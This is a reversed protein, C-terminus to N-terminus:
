QLSDWLKAAMEEGYNERLVEAVVRYYHDRISNGSDICMHIITEPPTERDYIRFGIRYDSYVTQSLSREDPKIGVYVSTPFPCLPRVIGSKLGLMLLKHRLLPIVRVTM